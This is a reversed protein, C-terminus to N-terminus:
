RRDNGKWRPKKFLWNYRKKAFDDSWPAAGFRYIVGSHFHMYNSNRFFTPYVAIKAVSRLQIGWNPTLMYNLGLGLSPSVMHRRVEPPRLTYSLGMVAFPELVDFFPKNILESFSFKAHADFAFAFGGHGPAGNMTNAANYRNFSLVGEFSWGKEYYYDFSASTPFPLANLNKVSFLGGLQRGDEDMFNFFGGVTYDYPRTIFRDDQAKVTLSSFFLCIFTLRLTNM